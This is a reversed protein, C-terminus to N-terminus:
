PSPIRQEASAEEGGRAAPRGANRDDVICQRLFNERRLDWRCRMSMVWASLSITPMTAVHLVVLEVAFDADL